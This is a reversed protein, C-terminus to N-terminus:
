GKRFTAVFARDAGHDGSDGAYIPVDDLSLGEVPLAELAPGFGAEEYHRANISLAFLARPRVFRLLGPLVEPGLHGLTFTGASVVGAYAGDPVPLGATVDGEILQRYCDKAAAVKLMEPSIDTGDIPRIGRFSLREGVLGTGAGVDLVPGAGGLGAFAAAVAEPLQYGTAEVFEADYTAAWGSYLRRSDDPTKLAYADDLKDPKRAM